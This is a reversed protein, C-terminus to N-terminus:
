GSPETCRSAQGGWCRVSLRSVQPYASHVRRACWRSVILVQKDNKAHEKSQVSGGEDHAGRQLKDHVEQPVRPPAMITTPKAHLLVTEVIEVTAMSVDEMLFLAEESAIYYACGLNGNQKMDLALIVENLADANDVSLHDDAQGQGDINGESQADRSTSSARLASPRLSLRSREPHPPLQPSYVSARSVAASSPRSRPGPMPLSSSSPLQGYNGRPISSFPRPRRAMEPLPPTSPITVRPSQSQAMRYPPHPTGRRQVM